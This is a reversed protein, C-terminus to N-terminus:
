PDRERPPGPGAGRVQRQAADHLKQPVSPESAEIDDWRTGLEELAARLESPPTETLADLRRRLAGYKAAVERHRAAREGYGLFTQLAAVASAALALLGAVIKLATSPSQEITSFLSTGVIATLVVVALGLGRGVSEFRAAARSHAIHEIRVGNLWQQLVTEGEAVQLGGEVDGRPVERM